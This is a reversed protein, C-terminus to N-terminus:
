VLKSTVAFKRGDATLSIRFDDRGSDYNRDILGLNRARDIYHQSRVKSEKQIKFFDGEYGEGDKATLYILLDLVGDEMHPENPLTNIPIVPPITNGERTNKLLQIQAVQREFKEQYEAQLNLLSMRLEDSEERTLLTSADIENKTEKLKKQQHHWYAFLWRSPHPYILLFIVASVMPLVIGRFVIM